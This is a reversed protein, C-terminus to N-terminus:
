SKPVAQVDEGKKEEPKIPELVFVTLMGLRTCKPNACYYLNKLLNHEFLQKECVICIKM